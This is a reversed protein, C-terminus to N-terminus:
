RSPLLKVALLRSLVDVLRAGEALAKQKHGELSFDMPNCGGIDSGARQWARALVNGARGLFTIRVVPGNPEAPCVVIAPQVIPLQDITALVQNVAAPRRISRQLAVPGHKIEHLRGTDSHRTREFLKAITTIREAEISAVGAPVREGAPRLVEWVVVADARLFAGGGPAATTSIALQESEVHPRSPAEFGAWWYYSHAPEDPAREGKSGGETRKMGFPHLAQVSRILAEPQGTVRWTPHLDVKAPTGPAPAGARIPSSKPPDPEPKAWAPAGVGALLSRALELALSRERLGHEASVGRMGSLTIDGGARNSSSCGTVLLLSLGLPVVFGRKRM